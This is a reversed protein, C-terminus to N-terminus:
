FEVEQSRAQVGHEIRWDTDQLLHPKRSFDYTCDRTCRFLRKVATSPEELLDLEPMVGYLEAPIDPLIFDLEGAQSLAGFTRWRSAPIGGGAEYTYAVEYFRGVEEESVKFRFAKSQNEAFLPDFFFDDLQDPLSEYRGYYAYADAGASALELNFHAPSEEGPIYATIFPQKEPKRMREGNYVWFYQGLEEDYAQINGTWGGDKPLSIRHELLKTELDSLNLEFRSSEDLTTQFCRYGPEENVKFLVMMGLYRPASFAVFLRGGIVRYVPQMAVPGTVIVEEVASVDNVFIEVQQYVRAGEEEVNVKDIVAGGSLDRYTINDFSFLGNDEAQRVLTLALQEGLRQDVTFSFDGAQEEELLKYYRLVGYQNNVLIATTNPDNVLRSTLTLQIPQGPLALPLCAFILILFRIM